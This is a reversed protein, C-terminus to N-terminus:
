VVRQRGLIGRAIGVALLYICGLPAFFILMIPWLNSNRSLADLSIILAPIFGILPVLAASRWRSTFAFGFWIQLILYLPTFLMIVTGLLANWSDQAMAASRQATSAPVHEGLRVRASSEFFNAAFQLPILRQNATSL